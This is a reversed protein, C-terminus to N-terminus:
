CSGNGAVGIKVVFWGSFILVQKRSNVSDDDVDENKLANEYTVRQQGWEHISRNM